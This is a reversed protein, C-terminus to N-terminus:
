VLDEIAAIGKGKEQGKENEEVLAMDGDPANGVATGGDTFEFAVGFGTILEKIPYSGSLRAAGSPTTSNRNSNARSTEARAPQDQRPAPETSSTEEEDDADNDSGLKYGRLVSGDDEDRGFKLSVRQEEKQLSNTEDSSTASKRGNDKTFPKGRAVDSDQSDPPGVPPRITAHPYIRVRRERASAPSEDASTSAEQRSAIRRTSTTRYNHHHHRSPSEGNARHFRTQSPIRARRQGSKSSNVFDAPVEPLREPGRLQASGSSEPSIQPCPSNRPHLTGDGKPDESPCELKLKTPLLQSILYAVTTKKHGGGNRNNSRAPECFKGAELDGGRFRINNQDEYGQGKAHFATLGDDARTSATAGHGNVRSRNREGSREGADSQVPWRRSWSSGPGRSSFGTGNGATDASSFRHAPKVQKRMLRNEGRFAPPVCDPRANALRDRARPPWSEWYHDPTDYIPRKLDKIKRPCAPLIATGHFEDSTRNDSISGEAAPSRTGPWPRATSRASSESDDLMASSSGASRARTRPVGVASERRCTNSRKRGQPRHEPVGSVKARRGASTSREQSRRVPTASLEFPPVPYPGPRERTHAPPARSISVGRHWFPKFKGEVSPSPYDGNELAGLKEDSWRYSAFEPSDSDYYESGKMSSMIISRAARRKKLLIIFFWTAGLGLFAIVVFTFIGLLTNLNAHSLDYPMAFVTNTITIASSNTTSAAVSTSSPVNPTGTATHIPSYCPTKDGLLSTWLSFSTPCCFTSISSYDAPCSSMRAESQRTAQPYARPTSIGGAVDPTHSPIFPCCEPRSGMCGIFPVYSATPGYDILTYQPTACHGSLIIGTGSYTPWPLETSSPTRSPKSSSASSIWPPPFFPPHIPFLFPFAM